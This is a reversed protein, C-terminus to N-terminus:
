SAELIELIEARRRNMEIRSACIELFVATLVSLTDLLAGKGLLNPGCEKYYRGPLSVNLRYRAKGDGPAWREVRFAEPDLGQLADAAVSQLVNLAQQIEKPHAM